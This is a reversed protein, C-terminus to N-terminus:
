NIIFVNKFSVVVWEILRDIFRFTLRFLFWDLVWDCISLIGHQASWVTTEPAWQTGVSRGPGFALLSGDPWAAVLYPHAWDSPSDPDTRWVDGATGATAGVRVGVGSAGGFRVSDFQFLLQLPVKATPTAHSTPLPAAPGARIPQHTGGGPAPLHHLAGPGLHFHRRRRRPRGHEGTPRSNGPKITGSRDAGGARLLLTTYDRRWWFKGEATAWPAESLEASTRQWRWVGVIYVPHMWEM